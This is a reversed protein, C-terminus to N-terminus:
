SLDGPSRSRIRDLERRADPVVPSNPKEVILAELLAVAEEVRGSRAHHRALSLAADASEPAAPHEELLRSRLEAGREADGARDALRAAHSLLPARESRPLGPIEAALHDVAHRESGRHGLVAARTLVVAADVGVRGLLSLLQIVETANSAPLAEVAERLAAKGSELDGQEFFLHARELASRPGQVDQLVAGAADPRGQAQLGFAVASALEDLEPAGPFETRFEELGTQLRAPDERHAELRLLDVLARRREASGAPLSRALSSRAEVARATDGAALAAAAIRQDLERREGEQRAIGRLEEYAWLSLAPSGTDESGRAIEMLFGRRAPEALEPSVKRALLLADEALGTELAIRAGARRRATTTPEADLAELLRAVVDETGESIQSIRRMVAAVQAGDEGLALSWERVAADPQGERELLDGLEVAFAAPQGLRERGERLLTMARAPGYAREYMRALERYPDYSAPDVRIWERAEAELTELSDVEVLVRLKMTRVPTARPDAALVGDILPLVEGIRGQRRLAREIAFLGGASAPVRELLDRLVREAAPHDGRAELAAADRLLRAELQPEATQATAAKVASGAWILVGLVVVRWASRSM